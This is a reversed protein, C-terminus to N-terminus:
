NAYRCQDGDMSLLCSCRHGTGVIIDQQKLGQECTVNADADFTLFPNLLHNHEYKVHVNKLFTVDFILPFAFASTVHSLEKLLIQTLSLISCEICKHRM